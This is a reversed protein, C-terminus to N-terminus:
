KLTLTTTIEGYPVPQNPESTTKVFVRGIAADVKVVEGAIYTSVGVVQVKAGKKVVPKIPMPVCDAKAYVKMKGAFGITLVKEGEIRIIQATEYDGTESKAAIKNGAQWEDTLVVFSNPALKYDTQGISKGSESDVSPNDYDLDLYRVVPEAPTADNVVIARQMGSGTQWWTLVVDGKKATQGQPIAIIISNPMKQKGDFTFEIESEVEGVVSMKANYFIYTENTPDESALKNQWMKYSPTLVFDGPQASISVKPFDFPTMGAELASALSDAPAQLTDTETTEDGTKSGGCYTLSLVFIGAILLASIMRQFQLKNAVM